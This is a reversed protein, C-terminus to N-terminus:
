KLDIDVVVMGRGPVRIDFQNNWPVIPMGPFESRVNVSTMERKPNMRVDSYNVADNNIFLRYRGGQIDMALVKIATSPNVTEPNSSCDILIQAVQILFSEDIGQYPLRSVWTASERDHHSGKILEGKTTELDTTAISTSLEHHNMVACIIGNLQGAVSFQVQKEFMPPIQHGILIIPGQYALLLALEEEAFLHPHPVVLPGEAYDLDHIRIVSHIPAGRLTLEHTLKHVSWIRDEIYEDLFPNFACDSWVLRAGTLQNPTAEFGLEWRERIWEWEHARIGDSLCAVFGSSCRQYQGQQDIYFVNSLSYIDRELITPAHRLTDWRETTDQISNLCILKTDPVYAKILMLMAIFDHHPNMEVGGAGIILSSTVSEVIFADIGTQAIRKYDVGYRYLAEFPDRTWATNYVVKRGDGKLQSVVKEWFGVWRNAYFQIWEKRRHTWIWESRQEMAERDGECSLPIHEIANEHGASIFQQVMDDSYDSFALSMRPSTYGDAGHYGDFGYDKMVGSLKHIFFDEYYSQSEDKFRKLPNLSGTLEGTNLMENLYSHEKCWSSTTFGGDDTLYGAINFFSCYVSIHYSQLESILGRLQYNTWAQRARERNKPRAIYSCCEALLRREKSMDEHTHIFDPSYLLISLADPIFGINRLYAAVGFDSQENDLGILEIWIWKEFSSM